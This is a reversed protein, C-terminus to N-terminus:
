FIQPLLVPGASLDRQELAQLLTTRNQHIFADRLELLSAQLNACTGEVADPRLQHTRGAVFDDATQEVYDFLLGNSRTTLAGLDARYEDHGDLRGMLREAVQLEHWAWDLQHSVGHGHVWGAVAPDLLRHYVDLRPDLFDYGPHTIDGRLRGEDRLRDRIPTGGYPLMRCFVAAASGDGVIQRLFDINQHISEFTTSPDFLMFGYSFAIGLDKLLQVAGLNTEVGIKKNLVDLGEDSGSELGMYVLYLGADRLRAFLTPELYEARCSIKWIIRDALGAAELEDVVGGVWKRGVKAWLPFDDDQFLFISIGHEDVLHRMEAVIQAPDRTRVTRGPATRYFVHISCFSCRRACGRSALVPLFRWGLVEGPATDRVPYPLEDLDHVLPRPETTTTIGADDRLALGPVAQWSEGRTLCTTLELLTHEGEFLAISDLQPMTQLVEDPCLSPFHGGITFHASVNHARLERALAVYDLLFYQFILSFGVVLPERHVVAEVLADHGDRFELMEVSFGREELVGALYGMGLNGQDQFGILVVHRRHEPLPPPRWGPRPRLVVAPV